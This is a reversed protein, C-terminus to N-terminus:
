GAILETGLETSLEPSTPQQRKFVVPYTAIYILSCFMSMALLRSLVLVMDPKPELISNEPRGPEVRVMVQKGVSHDKDYVGMDYGLFPGEVSLRDGTFERGDVTYKYQVLPKFYPDKLTVTIPFQIAAITAPVENWTLAKSYAMYKQVDPTLSGALLALLAIILPIQM